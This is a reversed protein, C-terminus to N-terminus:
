SFLFKFFLLFLDVSIEFSTSSVSFVFLISLGSLISSFTSNIGTNSSFSIFSISSFIESFGSFRISLSFLLNFSEILSFLSGFSSSSIKFSSSIINSGTKFSSSILLKFKSSLISSFSISFFNFFLLFFDVSIESSTSSVFFVLSLVKFVLFIKSSSSCCFINVSSFIGFTNASFSGIFFSFLIGKSKSNGFNFFVFYDILHQSNKLIICLNSM